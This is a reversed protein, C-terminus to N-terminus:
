YDMTPSLHQEVTTAKQKDIFSKIHKYSIFDSV